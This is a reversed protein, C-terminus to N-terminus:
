RLLKFYEVGIENLVFEIQNNMGIDGLSINQKKTKTRVEILGLGLLSSSEQATYVKTLDQRSFAIIDPLFAKNTLQSFKFFKQLDIKGEIFARFLLAIIRTKDTDDVKDIIELLKEGIKKNYQFDSQIKINLELKQEESVEGLEQLFKLLKKVFLYDSISNAIKYISRLTGIIPIQNINENGIINDLSIEGIDSIIDIAGNNGVTKILSENIDM